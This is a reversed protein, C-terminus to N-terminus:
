ALSGLSFGTLCTRIYTTMVVKVNTICSRQGDAEPTEEAGKVTSPLSLSSHGLGGQGALSLVPLKQMEWFLM